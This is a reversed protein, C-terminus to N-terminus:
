QINRYAATFGALDMAAKAPQGNLAQITINLTQGRFMAQLFDDSVPSKAYCGNGDCNRYELRLAKAGDVDLTIGASLLSGLPTQLVLLPKRAEGAVRINFRISAQGGIAIGQALVCDPPIARARSACQVQWRQPAQPAASPQQPANQPAAPSLAVVLSILFTVVATGLARRM